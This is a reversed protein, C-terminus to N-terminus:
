CGTERVQGRLCAKGSYDPLGTLAQLCQAFYVRTGCAESVGSAELASLPEGFRRFVAERLMEALDEATIRKGFRWALVM